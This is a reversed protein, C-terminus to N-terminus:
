IELHVVKSYVIVHYATLSLTIKQDVIKNTKSQEPRAFSLKPIKNVSAPSRKLTLLKCKKCADIDLIIDFGM